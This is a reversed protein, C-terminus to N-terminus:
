LGEGEEGAVPSAEGLIGRLAGTHAQSLRLMWLPHETGQGMM